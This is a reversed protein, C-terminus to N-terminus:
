QEHYIMYKNPELYVIQEVKCSSSDYDGIKYDNFQCKDVGSLGCGETELMMVGMRKMEM